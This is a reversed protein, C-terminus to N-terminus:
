KSIKPKFFRDKPDSKAKPKEAKIRTRSSPDLGLSAGLKAMHDIAKNYISVYPNQIPHGGSVTIEGTDEDEDEKSNTLVVRGNEAINAKAELWDAYCECYLQLIVSDLRTLIGAMSLQLCIRRWEKRAAKSLHRPCSPKESPVQPEGERNHRDERYQGSAKLNATPQPKRGRTM